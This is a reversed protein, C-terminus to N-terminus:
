TLQAELLRQPGRITVAEDITWFPIQSFSLVPFTSVYAVTPRDYRGDARRTVAVLRVLEESPDDM